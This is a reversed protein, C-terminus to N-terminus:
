NLEEFAPQGPTVGDVAIESSRGLEIEDGPNMAVFIESIKGRHKTSERLGIDADENSLVILERLPRGPPELISAPIYVTLHTVARLRKGQALPFPRLNDIRVFAL